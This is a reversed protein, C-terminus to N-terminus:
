LGWAYAAHSGPILFFRIRGGAAIRIWPPIEVTVTLDNHDVAV